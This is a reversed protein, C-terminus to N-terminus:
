AGRIDVQPILRRIAKWVADFREDDATFKCIEM